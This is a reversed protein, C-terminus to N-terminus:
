NRRPFSFTERPCKADSVFTVVRDKLCVRAISITEKGTYNDDDDRHHTISCCRDVNRDSGPTARMFCLMPFIDDGGRHFRDTANLSSCYCRSGDNANKALREGSFFIAPSLPPPPPPPPPSRVVARRRRGRLESEARPPSLEMPLKQGSARCVRGYGLTHFRTRVRSPEKDTAYKSTLSSDIGHFAV